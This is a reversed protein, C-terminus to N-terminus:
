YTRGKRYQAHTGARWRRRRGCRPSRRAPTRMRRGRHRTRRCRRPRAPRAADAAAGGDAPDPGQKCPRPRRGGEEDAARHVRGGAATAVAAGGARRPAGPGAAAHEASQRQRLRDRGIRSRAPYREAVECVGDFIIKLRAPLDGRPTYRSDQHHRQRHLELPTRRLDIVGFGTPRSAPTSASSACAPSELTRMDISASM